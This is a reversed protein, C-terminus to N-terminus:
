EHVYGTEAEITILQTLPIGAVHIQLLPPQTILQGSANIPQGLANFSFDAPTITYNVGSKDTRVEYTTTANSINPGALGTLDTNCNRSPPPASAITLTASTPTFAVCVTRRQAIAAKQAYRLLALTEDHFGRSNFFGTDFFKPGMVGSLIGTIVLVM